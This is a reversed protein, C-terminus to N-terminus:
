SSAALRAGVIMVDSTDPDYPEADFAGREVRHAAPEGVTAGVVRTGVPLGADGQTM